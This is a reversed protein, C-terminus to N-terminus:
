EGLDIEEVKYVESHIQEKNLHTYIDLTVRATSHGMIEQVVKLDVGLEIIRTCYTHRFVHASLDPLKSDKSTKNFRAVIRHFLSNLTGIRYLDHNKNLFIFGSVGDITPGYTDIEKLYKEFIKILASPLPILRPTGNKLSSIFHTRREEDYLLQHKLHICHGELDIEDWSLGIFESIRLGTGLFVAIIEYYKHYCSTNSKLFNM